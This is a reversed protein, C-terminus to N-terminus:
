PQRWQCSEGICRIIWWQPRHGLADLRGQCHALAVVCHRLCQKLLRHRMQPLRLRVRRPKNVAHRGIETQDRYPLAVM